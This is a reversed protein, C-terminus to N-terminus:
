VARMQLTMGYSVVSKVDASAIRGLATSVVPNVSAFAGPIGLAPNLNVKKQFDAM